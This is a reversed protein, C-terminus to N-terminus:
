ADAVIALEEADGIQALEESTWAIMPPDGKEVRSPAQQRSSPPLSKAGHDSRGSGCWRSSRGANTWRPTIVCAAIPGMVDVLRAVSPRV